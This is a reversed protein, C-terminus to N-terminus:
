FTSLYGGAIGESLGAGTDGQAALTSVSNNVVSATQHAKYLLYIGGVVALGIIVNETQM